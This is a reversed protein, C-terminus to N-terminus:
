SSANVRTARSSRRISDHQKTIRGSVVGVPANDYDILFCNAAQAPVAALGITLALCAIMRM